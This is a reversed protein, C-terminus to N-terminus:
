EFQEEENNSNTKGQMSCEIQERSPFRYWGYQAWEKSPDQHEDKVIQEVVQRDTDDLLDWSFPVDNNTYSFIFREFKSENM